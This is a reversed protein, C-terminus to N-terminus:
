RDEGTGNHCPACTVSRSSRDFYAFTGAALETGCETCSGAYRLSLGRAPKATTGTREQRATLRALRDRTRKINGGLNQTAYPAIREGKDAYWERFKRPVAAVLEPTVKGARHAKNYANIAGREAELEALKATLREIADPDDDYIAGDAQARIEAASSAQRNAKKSHEVSRRMNQDMRALDRRHRGESHHGVLIPQGPPIMDLTQRVAQYREDAKQENSEAWTDLRDARALRRERYTTV